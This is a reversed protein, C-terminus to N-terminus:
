ADSPEETSKTTATSPAATTSLNAVAAHAVQSTAVTSQGDVAPDAAGRFLQEIASPV